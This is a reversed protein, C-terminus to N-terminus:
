RRPKGKTYKKSATDILHRVIDGCAVSYKDIKELLDLGEEGTEIDM